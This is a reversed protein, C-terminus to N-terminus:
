LKTLGMAAVLLAAAAAAATATTYRHVTFVYEISVLLSVPFMRHVDSTPGAEVPGKMHTGGKAGGTM